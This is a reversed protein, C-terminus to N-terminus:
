LLAASSRFWFGHYGTSGSENIIHGWILVSTCRLFSVSYKIFTALLDRHGGSNETFDTLQSGGKAHCCLLEWVWLCVAVSPKWRQFNFLPFDSVTPATEEQLFMQLDAVGKKENGAM